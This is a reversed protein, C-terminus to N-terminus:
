LVARMRSELEANAVALAQPYASDYAPRIFPHAPARSTGHEVMYGYPAKQHNWSVHYTALAKGSNDKSYAQYIADRLNGPKFLYRVGTKKYDRGTFFHAGDSTPCRVRAAYYLEEAGAQAAPRVADEAARSIADMSAEVGSTDLEIKFANAM